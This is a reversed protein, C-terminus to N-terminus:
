SVLERVQPQIGGPGPHVVAGAERIATILEAVVASGILAGDPTRAHLTRFLGRGATSTSVPLRAALSTLGAALVAAVRQGNGIADLRTFEEAVASIAACSVPTGAQTEAHVLV